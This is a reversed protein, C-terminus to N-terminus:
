RERRQSERLTAIAAAGLQRTAEEQEVRKPWGDRFVARGTDGEVTRAGDDVRDNVLFNVNGSLCSSSACRFLVKLWYLTVGGGPL